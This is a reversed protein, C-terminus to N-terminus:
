VEIWKILIGYPGEMTGQLMGDPSRGSIIVRISASSFWNVPWTVDVDMRGGAGAEFRMTRDHDPLVFKRDNRDWLLRDPNVWKAPLMGGILCVIEGPGMRIVHGDVKMSASDSSIRHSEFQADLPGSPNMRSDFGMSFLEDMTEARLISVMRGGPLVGNELDFVGILAGHRLVTLRYIRGSPAQCAQDQLRHVLVQEGPGPASTTVCGLLCSFVFCLFGPYQLRSM